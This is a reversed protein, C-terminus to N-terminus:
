RSFLGMCLLITGTAETRGVDFPNPIIFCGSEHLKRFAARKDATTLMIEGWHGKNAGPLYHRPETEALRERRWRACSRGNRRSSSSTKKRSISTRRAKRM